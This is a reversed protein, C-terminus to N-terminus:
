ASQSFGDTSWGESGVGHTLFAGDPQLTGLRDLAEPVAVSTSLVPNKDILLVRFIRFASQAPSTRASRLHCTDQECWPQPVPRPAAAREGPFSEQKLDIVRRNRRWM